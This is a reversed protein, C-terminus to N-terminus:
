ISTAPPLCQSSKGLDDVRKPLRLIGLRSFTRFTNVTSTHASLFKVNCKHLGSTPEADLDVLLSDSLPSIQNAVLLYELRRGEYDNKVICLALSDKRRELGYAHEPCSLLRSLSKSSTIIVRM